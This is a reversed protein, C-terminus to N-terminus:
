NFPAFSLKVNHTLALQQVTLTKLQWCKRRASKLSASVTDLALWAQGDLLFPHRGCAHFGLMRGTKYVSTDWTKLRTLHRSHFSSHFLWCGTVKAHWQNFWMCICGCREVCESPSMAKFHTWKRICYGQDWDSAWRVAVAVAAAATCSSASKLSDLLCDFM